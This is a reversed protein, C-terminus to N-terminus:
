QPTVPTPAGNASFNNNIHSDGYSFIQAGNTASIGVNNAIATTRTMLVRAQGGDANVGTANAMTTVNDLVTFLTAAGGALVAVGTGSSANAVSDRMSVTIAGGAAGATGDVRLGLFNNLLQVRNLTVRATATGLGVVVIGGNSAANG